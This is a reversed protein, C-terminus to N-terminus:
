LWSKWSPPMAMLRTVASERETRGDPGPRSLMAALEDLEDVEPAPAQGGAGGSQERPAQAGSSARAEDSPGDSPGASPGDDVAARASREADGGARDTRECHEPACVHEPRGAAPRGACAGDICPVGPALVCWLLAQAAIRIGVSIGKMVASIAAALVWRPVHAVVASSIRGSAASRLVM